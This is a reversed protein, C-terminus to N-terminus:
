PSGGLGGGWIASARAVTVPSVELAEAIAQDGWGPGAPGQDAKLLIRARMLTRAAATGAAILRELQEREAKTLPVISRKRMGHLIGM